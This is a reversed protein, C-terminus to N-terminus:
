REGELLEVVDTYTLVPAEVRLEGTRTFQLHVTVTDGVELPRALNSLM